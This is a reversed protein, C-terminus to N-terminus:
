NNISISNTSKMKPKNFITMFMKYLMSDLENIFECDIENLIDDICVLNNIIFINDYKDKFNKCFRKFDHYCHFGFLINNKIVFRFSDDIIILSTDNNSIKLLLHHTKNIYSYKYEIKMRYNYYRLDKIKYCHYNGVFGEKLFFKNDDVLYKYFNDYEVGNDEVIFQRFEEYNDNVVEFGLGILYDQSYNINDLAELITM